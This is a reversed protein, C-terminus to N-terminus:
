VIWAAFRGVAEGETWDINAWHRINAIEDVDREGEEKRM